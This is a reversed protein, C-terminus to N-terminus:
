PSAPQYEHVWVTEIGWTFLMLHRSRRVFGEAEIPRTVTVIRTGPGCTRLREILRAKTEPSLALWNTFVHTADGLETQLMDGVTLTIGVARLPAEVRTVHDAILEVGRTEAGLWRAAILVRGRGAGLDVLRSGPGVGARKFVYLATMLPTEGYILERFRQGTTKLARIVEFSRRARYPTHRVEAWWIALYPRLLRPRWLLLLLDTLRIVISFVLVQLQLALRQFFPLDFEELEDDRKAEPPPPPSLGQHGAHQHSGPWWAGAPDRM